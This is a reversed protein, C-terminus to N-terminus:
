AEEPTQAPAVSFAIETRLPQGGSTVDLRAAADWANFKALRDLAALRDRKTAEADRGIASAIEQAEALTMIASTRAKATASAIAEQVNPITLLDAAQQRATRPSYGARAAAQTANFDKLYETVFARRKANVGM